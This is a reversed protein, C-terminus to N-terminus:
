PWRNVSLQVGLCELILKGALECRRWELASFSLEPLKVALLWLVGLAWNV